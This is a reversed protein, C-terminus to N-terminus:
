QLYTAVNSEGLYVDCLLTGDTIRTPNQLEVEKNQLLKELIEKGSPIGTEKKGWMSCGNIKVLDGSQNNWKWNPSIKITDEDRIEVIKFAM